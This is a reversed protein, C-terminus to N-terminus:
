KTFKIAIAAFCILKTDVKELVAERGCFKCEGITLSGYLPKVQVARAWLKRIIIIKRGLPLPLNQELLRIEKLPVGAVHALEQQTLHLSMRLKRCESGLTKQNDSLIKTM